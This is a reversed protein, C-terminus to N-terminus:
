TCAVMDPQWEPLAHALQHGVRFCQWEKCHGEQHAKSDPQQARVQEQVQVLETLTNTLQKQPGDSHGDLLHRGTCSINTVCTACLDIAASSCPLWGESLTPNPKHLALAQCMVLLRVLLRIHM